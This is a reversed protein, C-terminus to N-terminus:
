QEDDTAAAANQGRRYAMYGAWTAFLASPPLLYWVKGFFLSQTAEVSLGLRDVSSPLPASLIAFPISLVVIAGVFAVIAVTVAFAVIESYELHIKINQSKKSTTPSINISNNSEPETNTEEAPM